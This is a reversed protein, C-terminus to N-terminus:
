KYKLFQNAMYGKGSPTDVMTMPYSINNINCIKTPTNATSSVEVGKNITTIRTCSDNRLNLNETTILKNGTMGSLNYMGAFETYITAIYAVKGNFDVSRFNYDVGNVKCMIKSPTTDQAVVMLISNKKVTSIRMCDKDRVNLTDTTVRLADGTNINQAYGTVAFTLIFVMVSASIYKIQKQINM